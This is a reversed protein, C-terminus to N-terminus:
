RFRREREMRKLCERPTEGPKLDYGCGVCGGKWSGARDGVEDSFEVAIAYTTRRVFPLRRLSRVRREVYFRALVRQTIGDECTYRYPMEDVFRGDPEKDREWSGVFPAWTGDARLVDHAVQRWDAWPMFFVRTRDGWSCHLTAGDSPCYTLGWSEVVEAPERRWRALFPLRIFANIRFLHLHLSFGEEFLCLAVAWGRKLSVEGWTTRWWPRQPERDRAGLLRMFWGIRPEFVVDSTVSM